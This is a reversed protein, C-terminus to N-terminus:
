SLKNACLWKYVNDLEDNVNTIFQENCTIDNSIHLLTTDDAYKVFNYFTSSLDLDNVYITFLLPGLISGQPVGFNTTAVVSTCNNFEDYHQRNELYTEFWRFTSGRAGYYYLNFLLIESNLSDFAKSLDLYVAIPTFGRDLVLRVRDILELIAHETSHEACFGYQNNGIYNNTNLYAILQDYM